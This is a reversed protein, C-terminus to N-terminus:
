SGDDVEPILESLDEKGDYERIAKELAFLLKADKDSGVGSSQKHQLNHIAGRVAEHPQPGQPNQPSEWQIEWGTGRSTGAQYKEGPAKSYGLDFGSSMHLGKNFLQTRNHEQGHAAEILDTALKALLVGTLVCFLLFVLVKWALADYKSTM